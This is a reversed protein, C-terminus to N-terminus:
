GASEGREGGDARDGAAELARRDQLLLSVRPDINARPRNTIRRAREACRLTKVTEAIQYAFSVPALAALITMRANGGLSDKLLMTLKSDRYPVHRKTKSTLAAICNELAMLGRNVNVGERFGSNDNGGLAVAEPGALDVLTLKASRVRNQSLSESSVTLISHSRFSPPSMVSLRVMRRTRALNLLSHLDELKQPKSVTVGKIQIGAHPDERIKLPEGPKPALLDRIEENYIEVYTVAILFEHSETIHDFIHEFARPTIGRHEGTPAGEISYTRGTCTQGYSLITGNFGELVSAVIPAAMTEYVVEQTVAPPFAFDFQFNVKQGAANTVAVTASDQDVSVNDDYGTQQEYRSRPRLRAAVKVAERQKSM